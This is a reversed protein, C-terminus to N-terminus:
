EKRHNRIFETLGIRAGAEITAESTIFDYGTSIYNMLQKVIPEGYKEYLKDNAWEQIGGKGDLLSRLLYTRGPPLEDTDIKAALKYTGTQLTTLKDSLESQLEKRRLASFDKQDLAWDQIKELTQNALTHNGASRAEEFQFLLTELPIVNSAPDSEFHTFAEDATRIKELQEKLTPILTPSEANAISYLDAFLDALTKSKEYAKQLGQLDAAQVALQEFRQYIPVLTRNIAKQVEENYLDINLSKVYQAFEEIVKMTNDLNKLPCDNPTKLPNLTGMSHALALEEKAFRLKTQVAKYKAKAELLAKSHSPASNVERILARETNELTAIEITLAGKEKAIDLATQAAILNNTAEITKIKDGSRVEAAHTAKALDFAAKAAAIEAKVARTVSRSVPASSHLPPPLDIASEAHIEKAMKLSLGKLVTAASQAKEKAEPFLGKYVINGRADRLHTKGDPGMKGSLIQEIIEPKLGKAKESVGNKVQDELLENLNEKLLDFTSQYEEKTPNPGTGEFPDNTIAFLKEFLQEVEVPRNTYRDILVQVGNILESQLLNMVKLSEPTPNDLEKMKKRLLDPNDGCGNLELTDILKGILDKLKQNNPFRLPKAPIKEKLEKKLEVIQKLMATAIGMKFGYQGPLTKEIGMKVLVGVGEPAYAKILRKAIYNIPKNFISNGFFQIGPFIKEDEVFTNIFDEYLLKKMTEGLNAGPNKEVHALARALCSEDGESDIVEKRYAALNKRADSGAEAYRKTANNYQTLHSNAIDLVRAIVAQARDGKVGSRYYALLKKGIKEITHPVIGLVDTCFYWFKARVRQVFNLEIGRKELCAMWVNWKNPKSGDPKLRTAAQTMETLIEEKVKNGAEDGEEPNLIPLKLRNVFIAWASAYSSVNGILREVQADTKVIQEGLEKIKAPDELTDIRRSATMGEPQEISFYTAKNEIAKLPIAPDIVEEPGTGPTSLELLGRGEPLHIMKLENPHEAMLTAAGAYSGVGVAIAGTAVSPAFFPAVLGVTAAALSTKISGGAMRTGVGAAAGGLVGVTTAALLPPTALVVAGAALAGAGVAGATKIAKKGDVNRMM